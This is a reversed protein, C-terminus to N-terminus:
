PNSERGLWKVGLIGLEYLVYLPVMVLLLTFADPTPTLIAAGIASGVFAHKRFRELDRATLIGFRSLLM